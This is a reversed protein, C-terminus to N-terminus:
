NNNDRNKEQKGAERSRIRLWEQKDGRKEDKLGEFTEM